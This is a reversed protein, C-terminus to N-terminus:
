FVKSHCVFLPSSLLKSIENLTRGTDVVTDLVYYVSDPEDGVLYFGFFDKDIKKNDKKLSYLSEREKGKLIDLVKGGNLSVIIQAIDLTDTAHGNRSPVPVIIVNPPLIASIDEAMLQLAKQDKSKVRHALERAGFDKYYNKVFIM